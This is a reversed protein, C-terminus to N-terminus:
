LDKYINKAKKTFKYYINDDKSSRRKTGNDIVQTKFLPAIFPEADILSFGKTGGMMNHVAQYSGISELVLGKPPPTDWNLYIWLDDDHYKEKFSIFAEEKFEEKSALFSLLESKTFENKTIFENLIEKAVLDFNFNIAASCEYLKPEELRYPYNTKELYGIGECNSCVSETRVEKKKLNLFGTSELSISVIKGTGKCNSCTTKEHIEKTGKKIDEDEVYKSLRKAGILNVEHYGLISAAIETKLKSEEEIAALGRKLEKYNDCDKDFELKYFKLSKLNIGFDQDLFNRLTEECEEELDLIKREIQLIPIGKYNANFSKVVRKIDKTIADKVQNKFHELEFLSLKNLKTFVKYDTINCLLNGRVALPVSLSPLRYDFVDFYPIDFRIQIYDSLSIFYIEAQFPSEGGFATGVISTLIPFNESKITQDHPGIIFDQNEGNKQKYVFVALEGDKVRLSSGYRIANEKKKSNEKGSPRWKWVLYEHEDCRIVDMLGSESKKIDGKKEASKAKIVKTSSTNDIIKEKSLIKVADYLGDYDKSSTWRGSDSIKVIKGKEQSKLWEFKKHDARVLIVRGTEPTLRYRKKKEDFTITYTKSM